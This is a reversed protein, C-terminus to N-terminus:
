EACGLSQISFESKETLTSINPKVEVAAYVGEALIIERKPTILPPHNPALIVCDIENSESQYSYIKGKKVNYNTLFYHKFFEIVSVEKADATGKTDKTFSPLTPEFTIRIGQLNEEIADLIANM